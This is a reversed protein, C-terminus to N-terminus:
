DKYYDTTGAIFVVCLVAILVTFAQALVEERNDSIMACFFM